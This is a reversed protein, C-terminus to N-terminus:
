PGSLRARIGLREVPSSHSMGPLRETDDVQKDTTRRSAGMGMRRGLPNNPFRNKEDKIMVFWVKTGSHADGTTMSAHDTGFVREGIRNRRFFKTGTTQVAGPSAHSM